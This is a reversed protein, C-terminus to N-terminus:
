LYSKVASDSVGARTRATDYRQKCANLEYDYAAEVAGQPSLPIDKALQASLKDAENYQRNKEDAKDRDGDLLAEGTEVAYELARIKEALYGKQASLDIGRKEGEIDVLDKVAQNMGDLARQTKELAERTAEETTAANAQSSAEKASQAFDVVDNWVACTRDVVQECESTRSFAERAAEVMEIRADASEMIQALAAEDAQTLALPRASDANAKIRGIGDVVEDMKGLADKRKQSSGDDDLSEMLIDVDALFSDEESFQNVLSDFRTSFDQVEIYHRYGVWLIVCSIVLVFAGLMFWFVFASTRRARKRRVVEAQGSLTSTQSVGRYNGKNSFRSRSILSYKSSSAELDTKAADLVDFSLENSSGATHRKIHLHDFVGSM